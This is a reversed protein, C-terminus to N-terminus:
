GCAFTARYGGVARLGAADNQAAYRDSEVGIYALREDEASQRCRAFFV